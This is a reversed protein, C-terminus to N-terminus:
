SPLSAHLNSVTASAPVCPRLWNVSLTCLATVGWPQPLCPRPWWLLLMQISAEFRSPVAVHGIASWWSTHPLLRYLWLSLSLDVAVTPSKVTTSETISLIVLHLTLSSSSSQSLQTFWSSRVSMVWFGRRSHMHSVTWCLGYTLGAIMDWYGFLPIVRTGMLLHIFLCFTVCVHLPISNPRKFPLFNQCM